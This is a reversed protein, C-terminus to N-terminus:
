PTQGMEEWLWPEWVKLGKIFLFSFTSRSIIGITCFGFLLVTTSWLWWFSLKCSSSSFHINKFSQLLTKRIGYFLKATWKSLRRGWQQCLSASTSNSCPYPTHSPFPFCHMWGQESGVLLRKGLLDSVPAHENNDLTMKFGLLTKLLITRLKSWTEM